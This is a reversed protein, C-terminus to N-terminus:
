GVEDPFATIQNLGSDAVNFSILAQIGDIYLDCELFKPLMDTKADRGLYPPVM